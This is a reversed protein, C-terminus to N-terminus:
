GFPASAFDPVADVFSSITEVEYFIFKSVFSNDITDLFVYNATKLKEFFLGRIAQGTLAKSVSISYNAHENFIARLIMYLFSSGIYLLVKVLNPDTEALEKLILEMFVGM